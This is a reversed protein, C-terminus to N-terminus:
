LWIFNLKTSYSHASEAFRYLSKNYIHMNWYHKHVILVFWGILLIVYKYVSIYIYSIFDLYIKINIFERRYYLLYEMM